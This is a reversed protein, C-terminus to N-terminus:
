ALRELDKGWLQPLPSPPRLPPVGLPSLAGTRVVWGVPWGPDQSRSWGAPSSVSFRTGQGGPVRDWSTSARFGTVCWPISDLWPHPSRGEGEQSLKLAAKTEGLGRSSACPPDPEM